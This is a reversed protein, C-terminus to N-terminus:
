ICRAHDPWQLQLSTFTEILSLRASIIDTVRTDNGRCLANTEAPLRDRELIVTAGLHARVTYVLGLLRPLITSHHCHRVRVSRCWSYNRRHQLYMLSIPAFASSTFKSMFSLSCLDGSNRCTRRCGM